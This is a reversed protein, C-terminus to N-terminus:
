ESLVVRGAAVADDLHQWDTPHYHERVVRAPVGALLVETRDGFDDVVVAGMGVVTLDGIRTGPAIRAASGIYCFRGIEVPAAGLGHTWIQSFRGALWTGEGIVLGGSADLFHGGTILADPGVDLFGVTEGFSELMWDGCHVLTGAGISAREGLVLHMPGRAHVRPRVQSDAAMTCKDVSIVALWGIRARPHISYGPIASYLARRVPAGPLMSVLTAYLRRVRKM